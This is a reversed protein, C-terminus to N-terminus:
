LENCEKSQFKVYQENGDLVTFSVQVSYGDKNTLNCSNFIEFMRAIIDWRKDQIAERWSDLMINYNIEM